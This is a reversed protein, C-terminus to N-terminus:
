FYFKLGLSILSINPKSEVSSINVKYFSYQLGLEFDDSGTYGIKGIIINAYGGESMLIDPASSLTYGLVFGIPVDYGPMFDVDGLLGGAIYGSTNERDFAEGYAYKIHFQLGFMPNFAYAGQVGIGVNMAPVKNVVQPNPVDDILDEFYKRVNIFNGSLNQIFLKTSLNFKRTQKIRILWGIDGGAITNVGDAFIMSMDTGLRGAMTFSMYMALWPNFRQQYRVEM